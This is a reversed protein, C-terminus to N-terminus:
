SKPLYFTGNVTQGKSRHNLFPVLYDKNQAVRSVPQCLVSTKNGLLETSTKNTTHTSIRLIKFPFVKKKELGSKNTCLVERQHLLILDTTPQPHCLFLQTYNQM